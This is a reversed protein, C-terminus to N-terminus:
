DRNEEDKVGAQQKYSTIAADSCMRLMMKLSALDEFVYEKAYFGDTLRMAFLFTNPTQLEKMITDSKM